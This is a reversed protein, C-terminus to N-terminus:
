SEGMGWWAAPMVASPPATTYDVLEPAIAPTQRQLAQMVALAPIVGCMSIRNEVVVQALRQPQGSCMAQLAMLDLRRNEPEAAFHNMDSSIVLLVPKTAEAVVTALAAGIRGTQAYDAQGLVIPVVRLNSNM